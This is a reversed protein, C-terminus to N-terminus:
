KKLSSIYLNFLSISGVAGLMYPLHEVRHELKLGIVAGVSVNLYVEDDSGEWGEPERTLPTIGEAAKATTVGYYRYPDGFGKM